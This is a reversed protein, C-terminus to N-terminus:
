PAPPHCRAAAEPPQEPAGIIAALEEPWPATIRVRTGLGPHDLAISAAHLAQRSVGLEAELESMLRVHDAVDIFAQEDIGYLKDGLVPYGHYALHVRIQHQRGTLPRAEVLTIPEDRFSGHALPSITTSAPLGGDTLSRPGMKIRVRSGLAAGIPVDIVGGADIRGRVIALYRKEIERHQFARKLVAAAPGRAFAIVGSTERDLRHGMQWGHGSGFWARLVATLTHRHYRASPHVPLGAPKGLVMLSEDRHLVDATLPVAPEVPAPRRVVVTQGLHVRSAARLNEGPREVCRVQGAAIIMQIRTRSLRRIRESLFRDLRYGDRSPDVPLPIELWDAAVLEGSRYVPATM